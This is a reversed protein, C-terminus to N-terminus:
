NGGKALGSGVAYFVSGPPNTGISATTQATGPAASAVLALGVPLLRRFVGVAGSM